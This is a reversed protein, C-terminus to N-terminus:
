KHVRHAYIGFMNDGKRRQTLDNHITKDNGIGVVADTATATFDGAYHGVVVTLMNERRRLKLRADVNDVAAIAAGRQQATM